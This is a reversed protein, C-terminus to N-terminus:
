IIHIVFKIKPVDNNVLTDALGLDLRYWVIFGLTRTDKFLRIKCSIGMVYM